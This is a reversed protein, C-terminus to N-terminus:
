RSQYGGARPEKPRAENVRLPRGQFDKGDMNSIAEDGGTEMDVFAFGKSRGTERDMIIKVSSVTGFSSFLQQLDADTAGWSLNGVYLNKKSVSCRKFISHFFVRFFRAVKIYM